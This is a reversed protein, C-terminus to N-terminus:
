AAEVDDSESKVRCARVYLRNSLPASPALGDSPLVIYM